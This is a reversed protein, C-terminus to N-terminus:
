YNNRSVLPQHILSPFTKSLPKLKFQSLFNSSLLPFNKLNLNSTRLSWIAM